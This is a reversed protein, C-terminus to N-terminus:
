VAREVFYMEVEGKHKAEVKGRPTCIFDNKVLEYTTGSINIKGNVSHQEMRAATNVTDGWIDYAFKKVGVIGAVVPGSNIGIRVKFKGGEVERKNIFDMIELAAQVTKKAHLPDEVPLGCVALYADGITKIKELGNKAIINDFATFCYHIEAVLETPSLKESILTFGVFDTFLVSVNEYQKAETHGTRKLEEAVESPLMNLLLSESREKEISILNNARQRIVSINYLLATVLLLLLIGISFSYNLNTSLRKTERLADLEVEKQKMKYNNEIQTLKEANESSFISDKMELYKSQFYYADEYNGVAAAAKYSILYADFMMRPSSEERSYKRCEAAANMAMDFKRQQLYAEAEISSKLALFPATDKLDSNIALSKNIMALASDPQNQKIFMKAFETYSQVLYIKQNLQTELKIGKNFFIKASDFLSLDTNVIGLLYYCVSLKPQNKMQKFYNSAVWYYSKSLIFNKIQYNVVGIQMAAKALRMTDKLKEDITYAELYYNIAGTTNYNMSYNRAINFKADAQGILYKRNACLTDM